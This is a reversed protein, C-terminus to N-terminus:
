QKRFKVLYVGAGALGLVTPIMFVSMSTLGAIMLASSDLPLLEGAVQTCISPITSIPNGDFNVGQNVNTLTGGSNFTGSNQFASDQPTKLEFTGHNNFIGDNTASNISFVGNGIVVTGGCNNNFIESNQFTNTVIFTGYNEFTVDSFNRFFGTTVTVGNNVIITGGENIKVGGNGAGPDMNVDVTVTVTHGDNVFGEGGPQPPGNGPGNENCNWVDPDTWIGSKVSECVGVAVAAFAPSTMGAVLVLALTGALLKQTNNFIL